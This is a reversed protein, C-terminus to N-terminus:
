LAPLTARLQSVLDVCATEINKRWDGGGRAESREDRNAYIVSRSATVLAGSGDPKFCERVEDATRGQAGFGPVLFLCHPMLSRILRTSELDRPSVVAGVCSYGHTGILGDEGAWQEVLKAVQHSVLSGDSLELGQVQIASENSTQVLVFLGGGEAKAVDLFPRIGDLGFYPNVTVADPPAFPGDDSFHNALQAHAYQTTSHGIDARKVDGIVLLGADQACKVTNFYSAVGEAHFREFFAINIKVAPIHPAIQQIVERSFEGIAAACAADDAIPAKADAPIGHRDLIERPLRPILPDLGVCAPANRQQVADILRDAFNTTM